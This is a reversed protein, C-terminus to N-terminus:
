RLANKIPDPVLGIARTLQAMAVARQHLAQARLTRAQTLAVESDLVDLATKAGTDYAVQAIDLAEQAQEVNKEQSAFVEEAEMVGAIAKRIDVRLASLTNETNLRAQDHAAKAEDRQARSLGSDFVPYVLGVTATWNDKYQGIPARIGRTQELTGNLQISPQLAQRAIDVQHRAAEESAIAAALDPRQECALQIARDEDLPLPPFVVPFSGVVRLQASPDIGLLHLLDALATSRNHIAKILAPRAASLQVEARLLDFRPATGSEVLQATHDRHKQRLEVSESAVRILDDALLMDYFARSVQFAVDVLTRREEAIAADISARAARSQSRYRGLPQFSENLALRHVDQRDSVNPSTRDRYTTEQSVVSATPLQSRFVQDAKARGAATRARSSLISRNNDLALKLCEELTLEDPIAAFTGNGPLIGAETAIATAPSATAGAASELPSATAVATALLLAPFAAICTHRFRHIM